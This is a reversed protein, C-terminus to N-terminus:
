ERDGSMARSRPSLKAHVEPTARQREEWAPRQVCVFDAGVRTSKAEMERMSERFAEALAHMRERQEDTLEPHNTQDANYRRPKADNIEKNATECAKRLAGTPPWGPYMHDRLAIIAAREYVEDSWKGVIEALEDFFAEPDAVQPEGVARLLRRIMPQM